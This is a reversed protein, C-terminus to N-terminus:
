TTAVRDSESQEYDEWLSQLGCKRPSDRGEEFSVPRGSHPHLLLEGPVPRFPVFQIGPQREVPESIELVRLVAVQRGAHAPVTSPELCVLGAGRLFRYRAGTFWFRVSRVGGASARVWFSPVYLNFDLPFPQGFRGVVM